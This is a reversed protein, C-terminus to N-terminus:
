SIREWMYVGLYPQINNHAGDGGTDSTPQGNRLNDEKVPEGGSQLQVEKSNGPFWTHHHSPM